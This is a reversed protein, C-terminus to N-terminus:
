NAAVPALVAHGRVSPAVKRAASGPRRYRALVDSRKMREPFDRVYRAMAPHWFGHFRFEHTEALAQEPMWGDFAMRYAALFVGSRDGGLWCHIYVKHRPQEQMLAFFEAVQEDKQPSWGNGPISVLRMGLKEARSREKKVEWPFEGRLDVITDIGLKQLHRLGKEGPQTGRYLYENVKGADSVGPVHIKQAFPPHGVPKKEVSDTGSCVGCVFLAGFLATFSRLTKM